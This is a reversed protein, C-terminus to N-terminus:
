GVIINWVDSADKFSSLNSTEYMSVISYTFKRITENKLWKERNIQTREKKKDTRCRGKQLSSPNQYHVKEFVTNSTPSITNEDESHSDLRSARRLM